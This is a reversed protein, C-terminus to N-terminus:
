LKRRRKRAEHTGKSPLGSAKQQSHSKGRGKSRAERSFKSMVFNKKRKKEVNTSGGERRKTEFQTRGALVKELREAKSQRKRTASAMIDEPNVTGKINVDAVSETESETESLAEFEQGKAIARKRRAAERPDFKARNEREVLKKMKAFDATSFIRTSSVQQKLRDRQEKTMKSVNPIEVALAGKDESSGQVPNGDVNLPVLSPAEEVDDKDQMDEEEDMDEWEGSDNEANNDNDDDVEEWGDDDVDDDDDDDDEEVEDDSDRDQDEDESRGRKRAALAAKKRAEYEVLLDAGEVGAPAVHEGYRAPRQEQGNKFRILAAGVLGRDKGALLAPHVQRVFNLWAKGAMAVSRDRHNAYAALDRALAEMDMAVGSTSLDTTTTAVVTESDTMAIAAAARKAKRSSRHGAPPGSDSYYTSATTALCSPVRACIARVANIGVAMQEESCRETIFNHCITQLLGYVEDPPVLGHCAQVTYALIATVDRQCGGLYKQLFTYLPLILLEHNGTLRTVFNIMLLKTEYKLGGGSSRQLRRFVAEALGQPDRLLELAPYLKKSAEVGKDNDPTEEMWDTAIDKKIQAKKKNKLARETQRSRRSTKRSHLHYDVRGATTAFETEKRQREDAAMKEEIGLFFRMARSAVTVHHHTVASALIAVTRDDTWVVARYLECVMDVARKCATEAVAAAAEDDMTGATSSSSSNNIDNNQQLIKHLFSQVARNVTEDRKGKKNINRLDQVIHRYLLDRLAKDNTVTAMVSFFLPLLQLPAVSGKNRMLILASVTAKRVPKPLNTVNAATTPFTALIGISSSNSSSNSNSNNQYGLLSMLLSAIRQAEEGKYSSSAVAAAFQILEVVRDTRPNSSSSSGSGAMTCTGNGAHTGSSGGSNAAAVVVIHNTPEHRLVNLEAELRRVQADYDDRYAVPDRKCLNQLQALKLTVDNTSSSSSTANATTSATAATVTAVNAMTDDWAQPEAQKQNKTPTFGTAL